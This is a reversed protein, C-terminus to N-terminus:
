SNLSQPMASQSDKPMLAPPSFKEIPVLFRDELALSLAPHNAQKSFLVSVRDDKIFYGLAESNNYPSIFFCEGPNLCVQMESGHCFDSDQCRLHQHRWSKPHFSYLSTHSSEQPPMGLHGDVGLLSDIFPCLFDEVWMESLIGTLKSPSYHYLLMSSQMVAADSCHGRGHIHLEKWAQLCSWQACLPAKETIAWIAKHIKYTKPVESYRHPKTYKRLRIFKM